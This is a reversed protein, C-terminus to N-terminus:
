RCSGTLAPQDTEAKMETTRFLEEALKILLNQAKKLKLILCCECSFQQSLTSLSRAPLWFMFPRFVDVENVTNLSKVISKVKM